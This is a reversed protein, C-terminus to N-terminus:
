TPCEVSTVSQMPPDFGQDVRAGLAVQKSKCHKEPAAIPLPRSSVSYSLCEMDLLEMSHATSMLSLELWSGCSSSVKRLSARVVEAAAFALADCSFPLCVM